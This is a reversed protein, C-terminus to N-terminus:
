VDDQFYRELADDCRNHRLSWKECIPSVKDLFTKSKEFIFQLDNVTFFCDM